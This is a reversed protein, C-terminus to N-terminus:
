IDSKSVQFYVHKHLREIAWIDSIFIEYVQSAWPMNEATAVSFNHWAPALNASSYVFIGSTCIRQGGGGGEGSRTNRLCAEM